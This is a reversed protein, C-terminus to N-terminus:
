LMLFKKTEKALELKRRLVFVDINVPVSRTAYDAKIKEDIKMVPDKYIELGTLKRLSSVIQNQTGSKFQPILDMIQQPRNLAGFDPLKKHLQKIASIYTQRTGPKDYNSNILNIVQNYDM